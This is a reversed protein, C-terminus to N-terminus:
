VFNRVLQVGAPPLSGRQTIPNIMEERFTKEFDYSNTGESISAQSAVCKKVLTEISCLTEPFFLNVFLFINFIFNKNKCDCILSLLLFTVVIFLNYLLLIKCLIPVIVSTLSYPVLFFTNLDRTLTNSMTNMKAINIGHEM